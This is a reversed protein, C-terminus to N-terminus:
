THHSQASFKLQALPVGYISSALLRLGDHLKLCTPGCPALRWAESSPAFWAACIVSTSSIHSKPIFFLWIPYPNSSSLISSLPYLLSLLSFLSSYLSTCSFFIPLLSKPLLTFRPLSQPEQSLPLSIDLGSIKKKKVEEWNRRYSGKSSVLDNNYFELFTWNKESCFFPPPLSSLSLSISSPTLYHSLYVDRITM